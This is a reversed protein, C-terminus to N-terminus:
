DKWNIWRFHVLDGDLVSFSVLERRSEETTPLANAHITFSLYGRPEQWVDYLYGILEDEIYLRVNTEGPLGFEEKLYPPIQKYEKRKELTIAHKPVRM